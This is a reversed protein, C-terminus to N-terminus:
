QQIHNEIVFRLELTIFVSCNLNCHESRAENLRPGCIYIASGTPSGHALIAMFLFHNTSAIM